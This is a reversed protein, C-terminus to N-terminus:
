FSRELAFLTTVAGNNGIPVYDVAVRTSQINAGHWKLETYLRTNRGLRWRYGLFPSFINPNAEDDYDPKSFQYAYDMGLYLLGRQVKWSLTNTLFPYLRAREEVDSKISALLMLRPQIGWTPVIGENLTAFWTIGANLGAVKYGLPFLHLDGNLNVRDRLGYNMGATLYPIPIRTGFAKIIPGGFSLNASREGQGMPELSTYAACNLLIFCCAGVYLFILKKM